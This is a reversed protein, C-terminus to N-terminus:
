PLHLMLLFTQGRLIPPSRQQQGTATCRVAKSTPHTDWERRTPPGQWDLSLIIAPLKVHPNTVIGIPPAKWQPIERTPKITHNYPLLKFIIIICHPAIIINRYIYIYIYMTYSVTDMATGYWDLQWLSSRRWCECCAHSARPFCKILRNWNM